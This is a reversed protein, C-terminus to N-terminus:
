NSPSCRSCPELLYTGSEDKLRRRRGEEPLKLRTYAMMRFRLVKWWRALRGESMDDMWFARCLLFFDPTERDLDRDEEEKEEVPELGTAGALVPPRLALKSAM